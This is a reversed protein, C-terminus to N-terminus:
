RVNRDSRRDEVIMSRVSMEAEEVLGGVTAITLALGDLRVTMVETRLRRHQSRQSEPVASPAGPHANTVLCLALHDLRVELSLRAPPVASPTVKAASAENSKTRRLFPRPTGGALGSMGGVFGSADGRRFEGVGISESGRTELPIASAVQLAQTYEDCLALCASVHEEAAPPSGIDLLPALCRCALSGNLAVVAM